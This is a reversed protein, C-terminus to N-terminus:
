LRPRGSWFFIQERGDRLRVLELMQGPVIDRARRPDSAREFADTPLEVGFPEPDSGEGEPIAVLELYVASETVGAVRGPFWHAVDLGPPGYHPGAWREAFPVTDPFVPFGIAEEEELHALRNSLEDVAWPFYGVHTARPSPGNGRKPPGDPTYAQREECMSSVVRARSVASSLASEPRM